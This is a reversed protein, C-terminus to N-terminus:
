FKSTLQLLSNKWGYKKSFIFLIVPYIICISILMEGYLNPESIDKLVSNTQFATWDATVLLAGTLNNAAHWGIALEVGEDMLTMIGLFLGTGIYYIMIGYGLKSVEPNALHLSGFILSTLLLPALRNRFLNGFGQMLYGRFLFEELSTQLPIFVIAILFMFLFPIPKFNWVYNEPSTMYDFLIMSAMIFSWLGFAFLIRKFDIRKRATVVSTLSQEHIKRVVLWVGIFAFAFPFLMLFLRMNPPIINLIEMPNASPDIEDANSLMSSALAILIPIQGIFNFVIIIFSGLLYYGFRYIRGEKYKLFM